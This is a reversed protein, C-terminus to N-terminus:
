EDELRFDEFLAPAVLSGCLFRFLIGVLGSGQGAWLDQFAFILSVDLAAPRSM